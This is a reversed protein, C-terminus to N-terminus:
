HAFLLCMQGKKWCLPVKALSPPRRTLESTREGGGGKREKQLFFLLFGAAHGAAPRRPVYARRASGPVGPTGPPPQLPGDRGMAGSPRVGRSRETLAPTTRSSLPLTPGTPSGSGMRLGPLPFNGRLAGSLFPAPAPAQPLALTSVAPLAPSVPPVARPHAPAPRDSTVEPLERHPPEAGVSFASDGLPRPPHGQQAARGKTGPAPAATGRAAAGGGVRLAATLARGNFLPPSTVPRPPPPLPRRACARHPRRRRQLVSRHRLAPRLSLWPQPHRPVRGCVRRPRPQPARGSPAAARPGARRRWGAAPFFLYICQWLIFILLSFFVVLGFGPFGAARCCCCCCCRWCWGAASARRRRGAPAVPRRWSSRSAGSGVLYIHPGAARM